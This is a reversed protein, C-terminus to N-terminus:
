TVADDTGIQLFFNMYQENRTLEQSLFFRRHIKMGYSRNHFKSHTALPQPIYFVCKM